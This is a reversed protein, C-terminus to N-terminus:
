IILLYQVSHNDQITM